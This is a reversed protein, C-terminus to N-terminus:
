LITNTILCRPLWVCVKGQLPKVTNHSNDLTNVLGSHQLSNRALLNRPLLPDRLVCFQDPGAFPSWLAEHRYARENDKAGVQHDWLM